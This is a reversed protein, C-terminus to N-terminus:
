TPDSAKNAQSYKQQEITSHLHKLARLYMMPFEVAFLLVLLVPSKETWDGEISVWFIAALVIGGFLTCTQIFRYRVTTGVCKDTWGSPNTFINNRFPSKM